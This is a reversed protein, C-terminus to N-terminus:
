GHGRRQFPFRVCKSSRGGVLQGPRGARVSSGSPPAAAPGGNRTGPVADRMQSPGSPRVETFFCLQSCSVCPPSTVDWPLQRGGRWRGLSHEPQWLFHPCPGQGGRRHPATRLAPLCPVELSPVFPLNSASSSALVGESGGFGAGQAQPCRQERDGPPVGVM